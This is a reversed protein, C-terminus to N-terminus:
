EEGHGFSLIVCALGQFEICVRLQLEWALIADRAAEMM